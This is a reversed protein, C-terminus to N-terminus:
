FNVKEKFFDVVFILGTKKHKHLINEFLFSIYLQALKIQVQLMFYLTKLYSVWDISMSHQTPM